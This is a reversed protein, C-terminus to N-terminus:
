STVEAPAVIEEPRDFLPKLRPILLIFAIFAVPYLL